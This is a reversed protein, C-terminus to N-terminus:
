TLIVSLVSLHWVATSLDGPLPCHEEWRWGHVLGGWGGPIKFTQMGKKQARIGWVNECMATFLILRPSRESSNWLSLTFRWSSKQSRFSVRYSFPFYPVSLFCVEAVGLSPFLCITVSKPYPHNQSGPLPKNEMIKLEWLPSIVSPPEVEGVKEDTVM